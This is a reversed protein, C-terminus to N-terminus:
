KTKDDTLIGIKFQKLFERQKMDHMRESNFIVSSDIGCGQLIQPRGTHTDIAATIDYVSGMILTWCDKESNHKKVEEMTYPTTPEPLVIKPEETPSNTYGIKTLRSSSIIFGASLVGTIILILVIYKNM